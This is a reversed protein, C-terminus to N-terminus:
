DKQEGYHKRAIRLGYGKGRLWGSFWLRQLAVSQIALGEWGMGYDMESKDGHVKFNEKIEDRDSVTNLFCHNIRELVGMFDDHDLQIAITSFANFMKLFSELYRKTIDVNEYYDRVNIQDAAFGLGRLDSVIKKHGYKACRIALHDGEFFFHWNHDKHLHDNWQRHLIHRAEGASKHVWDENFGYLQIEVM